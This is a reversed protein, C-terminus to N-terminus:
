ILVKITPSYIVIEKINSKLNLKTFNAKLWCILKNSHIPHPQAM